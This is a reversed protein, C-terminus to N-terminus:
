QAPRNVRHAPRRRGAGSRGRRRAGVEAAAARPAAGSGGRHVTTRCVTAGGAPSRRRPRRRRDPGRRGRARRLHQAVPVDGPQGPGLPGLHVPQEGQERVARSCRPRPPEPRAGPRARGRPRVIRSASRLPPSVALSRVARVPGPGAPDHQEHVDAARHRGVGVRQQAERWASTLDSGRAVSTNLVPVRSVRSVARAAGGRGPWRSSVRRRAAIGSQLPPVRSPSSSSPTGRGSLCPAARPATTTIAESPQSRPSAASSPACIARSDGAPAGRHDPDVRVLALCPVSGSVARSARPAATRQRSRPRACGPRRRPAPRTSLLSAFAHRAASLDRPQHSAPSVNPRAVTTLVKRLAGRGGPAEM